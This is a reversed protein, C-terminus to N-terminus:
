EKRILHVYGSKQHTFVLEGAAYIIYYYVGESCERLSYDLGDWVPYDVQLIRIENGWRNYIVVKEIPILLNQFDLGDNYGDGNPTFINPFDDLCGTAEIWISDRSTCHPLDTLEIWLWGASYISVEATTDGTSWLYYDATEPATAMLVGGDCFVQDDLTADPFEGVYVYVSDSMNTCITEETIASYWGQDSVSASLVEWENGGIFNGAPTQWMFQPAEEMTIIHIGENVCISDPSILEVDFDTPIHIVVVASDPVSTCFADSATLSYTGSESLEISGIMLTDGAFTAGDPLTWAYDVGPTPETYVILNDGVCYDLPGFIEPTVSGPYISLQAVSPLYCQPSNQVFVYVLTDQWIAGTNFSDSESEVPNGTEGFSWFVPIPCDATLLTSSGACLSDGVVQPQVEDVSYVTFPASANYCGGADLAVVSYIGPEYVVLSDANSDGPLWEYSAMGPTALLMLSDGECIVQADSYISTPTGGEEIVIELDNTIECLTVQCVYTGASDIVLTPSDGEVPPLWDILSDDNTIVQVTVEGAVCLDTGPYAILYPSNYEKVEVQNSELTCGSTNTQVCFYFGPVTVYISQTTDPLLGLPGIWQYNIGSQCTLLVSDGPCVLGSAPMMTVVPAEFYNILHFDSDNDTCGYENTETGSLFYGGPAVVLVSDPSLVQLIGQGSWVLNDSGSGVLLLTDGACMLSPGDIQTTVFPEPNVTVFVSQILEPYPIALQQCANNVGAVLQGTFIYNGSGPPEFYMGY